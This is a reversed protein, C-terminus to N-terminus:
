RKGIAHLFADTGDITVAGLEIRRAQVGQVHVNKFTTGRFNCDDLLVQEMTCAEMTVGDIGRKRWGDSSTILVNELRCGQLTVDVLRASRVLCTRWTTGLLAIRCLQSADIEVDELTSADVDWTNVQVGDLRVDLWAAGGHLHLGKIESAGIRVRQMESQAAVQLKTLESARIRLDSLVSDTVEASELASGQVELARVAGNRVTLVELQSGGIVSGTFEATQLALVVSSMRVKNGRFTYNHSDNVDVRSMRVDNERLESPYVGHVDASRWAAHLSGTLSQFLSSTWAKPRGAAPPPAIPSALAAIMEATQEDTLVGSKNMDLVQQIQAKM